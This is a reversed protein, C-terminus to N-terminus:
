DIIDKSYLRDIEKKKERIKELRANIIREETKARLSKQTSQKMKKSIKNLFSEEDNQLINENLTAIMKKYRDYLRKGEENDSVKPIIGRMGLGSNILPDSDHVLRDFDNTMYRVFEFFKEEEEASEITIDQEIQDEDPKEIYGTKKDYTDYTISEIKNNKKNNGNTKKRQRQSGKSMKKNKREYRM